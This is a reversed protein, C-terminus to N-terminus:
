RWQRGYPGNHKYVNVSERSVEQLNGSDPHLFYEHRVVFAVNLALQSRELVGFLNAIGAFCTPIEPNPSGAEISPSIGISLVTVGTQLIGFRNWLVWGVSRRGLDHFLNQLRRRYTM